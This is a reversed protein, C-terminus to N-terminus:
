RVKMVVYEAGESDETEICYGAKTMRFYIHEFDEVDVPLRQAVVIKADKMKDLVFDSVEDWKVYPLVFVFDWTFVPMALLLDGVTSYTFTVRSRLKNRYFNLQHVHSAHFCIGVVGHGFDRSGLGCAFTSLGGGLVLSRGGSGPEIGCMEMMKAAVYLDIESSNLNVKLMLEAIKSDRYEHM